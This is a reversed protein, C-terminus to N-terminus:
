NQTLHLVYPTVWFVPFFSIPVCKHWSRPLRSFLGVPVDKYKAGAGKENAPPKEFWKLYVCGPKCPPFTLLLPQETNWRLFSAIAPPKCNSQDCLKCAEGTSFSKHVPLCVLMQAKGYWATLGCKKGYYRVDSSLLRHLFVVPYIFSFMCPRCLIQLHCNWFQM